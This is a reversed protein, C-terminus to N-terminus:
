RIKTFILYFQSDAKAEFGPVELCCLLQLQHLSMCIDQIHTVCSTSFSSDANFSLLYFIINLHFFIVANVFLGYSWAKYLIQICFFFCWAASVNNIDSYCFLLFGYCCLTCLHQYSTNSPNILNFQNLIAVILIHCSSLIFLYIFYLFLIFFLYFYIIFIFYFYIFLINLKLLCYTHGQM